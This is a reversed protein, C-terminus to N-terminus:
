TLLSLNQHEAYWDSLVVFKKGRHIPPYPLVSQPAEELETAM